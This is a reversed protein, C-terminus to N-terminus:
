EEIYPSTVEFSETSLGDSIVEPNEGEDDTEQCSTSVLEFGDCSDVVTQGVQGYNEWLTFTYNGLYRQDKGRVWFDLLNEQITYEELSISNGNPINMVLLLDRNELSLPKGNTLISWKVEIDKGLRIKKPDSM